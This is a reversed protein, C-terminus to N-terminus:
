DKGAEGAAEAQARGQYSSLTSMSGKECKGALFKFCRWVYPKEGPIISRNRATGRAGGESGKQSFPQSPLRSAGRAGHKIIRLGAGHRSQLQASRKSREVEARPSGKARRRRCALDVVGVKSSKRGSSNPASSGNLSNRPNRSAKGLLLPLRPISLNLNMKENFKHIFRTTHPFEEVSENGFRQTKILEGVGCM